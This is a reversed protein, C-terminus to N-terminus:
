AAIPGYETPFASAGFFWSEVAYRPNPMSPDSATQHLFMEDFFLADGPEFVPRLIPKDGAAQQAQATSVQYALVADDTETAVLEDLRRPVLDLGPAEDGCRSLSLWLNLARVEGMFKGDQHWAGPVDPTAKRLTTKQLSLLPYEGLYDGVLRQLDASAFLDLMETALLPSDPALLGGGAQVWSRAGVHIDFPERAEFEEYYGPAPSQGEAMKDREAYARDIQAAFDLAAQRDILGRVLVCGDRLIGARLIGPTLEAAPIEPLVEAEPLNQFDPEPHEASDNTEILLRVGALHRLRLIERERQRDPGARNELTLREIEAFLEETTGDFDDDVKDPLKVQPRDLVAAGGEDQEKNRRFLRM